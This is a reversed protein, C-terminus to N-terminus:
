PQPVLPGACDRLINQVILSEGTRVVRRRGADYRTGTAVEDDRRDAIGREYIDLAFELPFAPNVLSMRSKGRAGAILRRLEGFTKGGEAAIRKADARKM